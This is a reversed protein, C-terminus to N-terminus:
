AVAVTSELLRKFEAMATTKVTFDTAGSRTALKNNIANFSGTLMIVLTDPAIELLCKCLAYGHMEKLVVDIVAFDPQEERAIELATDETSSTFLEADPLVEKVAEETRELDELVDDIILIKM